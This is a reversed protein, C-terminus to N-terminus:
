GLINGLSFGEKSQFQRACAQYPQGVFFLLLLIEANCNSSNLNINHNNHVVKVYELGSYGVTEGYGFGPFEKETLYTITGGVSRYDKKALENLKRWTEVSVAISKYKDTDM